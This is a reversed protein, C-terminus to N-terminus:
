ATVPRTAMLEERLVAAIQQRANGNGYFELISREPKQAGRIAAEMKEVSLGVLQNWGSTLTEEWETDERLTVCPVEFFAAEKQVGGSDTVILQASEELLLMEFYSVPEVCRIHRFPAWSDVQSRIRPHVPFLVPVGMADLAKLLAYAKEPNATTEARHMTLLYYAGSQLELKELLNPYQQRALKRYLLAADLMVDGSWYVNKELGEKALNGVAAQTPAFLWRSLHDTVVRNVEEPMRRNYSRLGAEIHALPYHFKSATLAGALTANTDGYVLVADPKEQELIPELRVLGEGTQYGHSGSGIGLHYQPPLLDLQEFFIDCMNADYHQGTNVLVEAIGAQKLALSVPAAKVFQPRAGVITLIKAQEPM